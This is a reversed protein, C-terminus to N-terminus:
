FLHVFFFYLFFTKQRSHIHFLSCCFHCLSPHVPLPSFLSTFFLNSPFYTIPCNSYSTSINKVLIVRCFYWVGRVYLNRESSVSLDVNVIGRNSTFTDGVSLSPSHAPLNFNFNFNSDSNSNSPDFQNRTTVNRLILIRHAVCSQM